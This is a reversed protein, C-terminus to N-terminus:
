CDVQHETPKITQLIHFLRRNQRMSAPLSGKAEEQDQRSEMNMSPRAQSQGEEITVNLDIHEALVTPLDILMLDTPQRAMDGGGQNTKAQPNDEHDM